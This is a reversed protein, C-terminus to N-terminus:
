AAIALAERVTQIVMDPDYRLEEYVFRYPFYGHNLAERDRRRDEAMQDARVHWRRGDAELLVRQPVFLCDCRSPLQPRWPLQVQLTPTPLGGIRLVKLLRRELWSEPPMYGPGREALIRGLMRIGRKGPRRLGDYFAQLEELRCQATIHADEIAGTLRERGAVAAADFLTRVVSTVQLGEILVVHEPALDTSQRIEGVPRRHHDGHRTSFVIRGKPFNTLGHIAAATEHSAVTHPGARL